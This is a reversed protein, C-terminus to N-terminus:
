CVMVAVSGSPSVAVCVQSATGYPRTSWSGTTSSRRRQSGARRHDGTGTPHRCGGSGPQAAQQRRRRLRCAVRRCSRVCAPFRQYLFLKTGCQSVDGARISLPRHDPGTGFHLVIPGHLAEPGVASAAGGAGDFGSGKSAAERRDQNHGVGGHARRAAAHWAGPSCRLTGVVPSGTHEKLTARVVFGIADGVIDGNSRHLFQSVGPDAASVWMTLHRYRPALARCWRTREVGGTWSGGGRDGRYCFCYLKAISSVTEAPWPKRQIWAEDVDSHNQWLGEEAGLAPVIRRDPVRHGM